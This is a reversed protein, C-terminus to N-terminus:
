SQLELIAFHIPMFPLAWLLSCFTLITHMGGVRRCLAWTTYHNTGGRSGDSLDPTRDREVGTEKALSQSVVTALHSESDRKKPQLPTLEHYPSSTLPSSEYQAEVQHFSFCTRGEVVSNDIKLREKQRNKVHNQHAMTERVTKM